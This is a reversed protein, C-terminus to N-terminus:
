GFIPLMREQGLLLWKKIYVPGENLITVDEKDITLITQAGSVVSRM